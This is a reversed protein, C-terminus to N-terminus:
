PEVSGTTSCKALRSFFHFLWAYLSAGGTLIAVPTRLRNELQVIFIPSVQAFQGGALVASSSQPTLCSSWSRALSLLPRPAVPSPHRDTTSANSRAYARACRM